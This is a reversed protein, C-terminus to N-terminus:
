GWRRAQGPDLLRRTGTETHNANGHQHGHMSHSRSSKRQEGTDLGSRENPRSSGRLTDKWNAKGQTYTDREVVRNSSQQRQLQGRSPQRGLTRRSEQRGLTGRSEQRGLTVRSEQRGLTGRSEQRGMGSPTQGDQSGDHISCISCSCFDKSVWLFCIIHPKQLVLLM